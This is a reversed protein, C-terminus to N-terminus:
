QVTLRATNENDEIHATISAGEFTGVKVSSAGDFTFRKAWVMNGERDDIHVQFRDQQGTIHEIWAAVLQFEYDGWWCSASPIPRYLTCESVSM